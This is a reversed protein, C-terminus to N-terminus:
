GALAATLRRQQSTAVDVGEQVPANESAALLGIEVMVNGGAEIVRIMRLDAHGPVSELWVERDAGGAAPEVLEAGAAVEASTAHRAAARAEEPSSFVIVISECARFNPDGLAAREFVVDWSDLVANEAGALAAAGARLVRYGSPLDDVQLAAAEAYLPALRATRANAGVEPPSSAPSTAAPSAAAHAGRATNTIHALDPRETALVVAFGALLGALAAAFSRAIL